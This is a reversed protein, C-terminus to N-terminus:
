NRKNENAIVKAKRISTVGYKKRLISTFLGREIKHKTLIEITKIGSQFDDIIKKEKETKLIQKESLVEKKTSIKGQKKLRKIKQISELCPYKEILKECPLGKEIHKSSEDYVCELFEERAKVPNPILKNNFYFSLNSKTMGIEEAIEGMRKKGEIYERILCQFNDSDLNSKKAM